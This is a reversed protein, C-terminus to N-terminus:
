VGMKFLFDTIILTLKVKTLDVHLTEKQFYRQNIGLKAQKILTALGESIKSISQLFFERHLRSKIERQESLRHDTHAKHYHTQCPSQQSSLM